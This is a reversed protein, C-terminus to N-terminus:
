IEQNDYVYLNVETSYSTKNKQSTKVNQEMFGCEKYYTICHGM